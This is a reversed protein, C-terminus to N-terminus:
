IEEIVKANRALEDERDVREHAALDQDLEIQAYTLETIAHYIYSSYWDLNELRKIIREVKDRRSKNDKRYDELSMQM